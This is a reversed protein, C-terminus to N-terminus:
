THQIHQIHLTRGLHVVLAPNAPCGFPAQISSATDPVLTHLTRGLHVVLAPDAPCGFPVQISSATDPPPGGGGPVGKLTRQCPGVTHTPLVEVLTRQFFTYSFHVYHIKFFSSRLIYPQPRIMPCNVQCLITPYMKDPLEIKM